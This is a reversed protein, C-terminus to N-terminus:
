LPRRWRPFILGTMWRNLGRSEIDFMVFRRDQGNLIDELRLFFKSIRHSLNWM